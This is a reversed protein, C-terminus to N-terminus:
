WGHHHPQPHPQHASTHATTPQQLVVQEEANESVTYRYFLGLVPLILFSQRYFGYVALIFVIDNQNVPVKITFFIDKM